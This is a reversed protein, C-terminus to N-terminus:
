GNSDAVDGLAIEVLSVIGRYQRCAKAVVGLCMWAKFHDMEAKPVPRVTPRFIGTGADLLDSAVQFEAAVEARISDRLDDQGRRKKVRCPSPVPPTVRGGAVRGGGLVPRGGIIQIIGRRIRKIHRGPRPLQHGARGPDGWWSQLLSWSRSSPRCSWSRRGEGS